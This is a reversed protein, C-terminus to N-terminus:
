VMCRPLMKMRIRKDVRMTRAETEAVSTLRM